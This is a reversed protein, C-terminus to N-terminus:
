GDPRLTESGGRKHLRGAQTLEWSTRSNACRERTQYQHVPKYCTSLMMLGIMDNRIMLTGSQRLRWAMTCHSCEGM